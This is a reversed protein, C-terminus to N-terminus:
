QKTGEICIVDKFTASEKNQDIDLRAGKGLSAQCQQALANLEKQTAEDSDAKAKQAALSESVFRWYRSTNLPQIKPPTVPVAPAGSGEGASQGMLLGVVSLSLLVVKM